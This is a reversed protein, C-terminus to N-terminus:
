VRTASIQSVYVTFDRQTGGGNNYDGTRLKVIIGYTDTPITLTQASATLTATSITTNYRLFLVSKVNLNTITNVYMNITGSLVTGYSVSIPLYWTDWSTFSNTGGLSYKPFTHAYSVYSSSPTLKIKILGDLSVVNNELATIRTNHSSINNECTNIDTECTAIRTNFATDANELATARNSLNKMTIDITTFNGNVLEGWGQEGVSPMFLNYNTTYTGM